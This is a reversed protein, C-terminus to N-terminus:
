QWSTLRLSQCCAWCHLLLHHCGHCNWLPWEWSSPSWPEWQLSGPSWCGAQRASMVRGCHVLSTGGGCTGCPSSPSRLHSSSSSPHLGEWSSSWGCPTCPCCGGSPRCRGGAGNNQWHEQIKDIFYKM